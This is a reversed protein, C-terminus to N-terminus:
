RHDGANAEEAEVQRDSQDLEEQLSAIEGVDEITPGQEVKVRTEHPHLGFFRCKVDAFAEGKLLINLERLLFLSHTAVFIQTGQVCLALVTRAIQKIVKPNLNAEPEDWFLYGKGTLAGTVILRAIMALKRHGEAVLYAELKGAASKVYFRGARDVEVNGGLSDEIPKLLDPVMVARAGRAPPAGLLVCTDRWTEEFPVAVTDYMSVFDPLVTLLERTPLFVPTSSAWETPLTNVAVAVVSGLHFSFNTNLTEPQFKAEVECRGRDSQRSALRGLAAPRFVARLKNAIATELYSKRPVDSNSDKAGRALVSSICYTAKLVHTKGTGNTGVIVNLGPAFEFDASSFVTFNRLKLRKM